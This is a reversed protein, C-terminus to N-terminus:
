LGVLEAVSAALKEASMSGDRTDGTRVIVLKQSPVVILYQGWHGQAFFTDRPLAPLPPAPTNAAIHDNLWWHGGGIYRNDHGPRNNKYAEPVTLAWKMWSPEFLQQGDWQGQNMVLLGIRALDRVSIHLYYAGAITGAQDTEFIWDKAGIPGMIKETFAQHVGNPYMLKLVYSLLISDGSSYRWVLGPQAVVPQRAVFKMMDDRGEGYLMALISAKTPTRSKEYEEVWAIGTTWQLAHAFQIDCLRPHGLDGFKCVSDNLAFKREKYASAYLLSMVSKSVSWAIHKTTETNGRAYREYLLEGNKVILLGDTRVGARKNKNLTERSPTSFHLAEFTKLAEAHSKAFRERSDRWPTAGYTLAANSLILIVASFIIKM